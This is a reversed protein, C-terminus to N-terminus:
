SALFKSGVSAPMKTVLMFVTQSSLNKNEIQVHKELLDLLPLIIKEKELWFTIRARARAKSM